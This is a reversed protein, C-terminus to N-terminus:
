RKGLVQKIEAAAAIAADMDIRLASAQQTASTLDGLVQQVGASRLRLLDFRVNQIAIVCSEFQSEVKGRRKVLEGLAVRQRKLLDLRRETDSSPAAGELEEIRQDLQALSADDVDRDMAALTRALEAARETLANVTPVVEPLMARETEPLREVLRVIATHDRRMQEIQAALKGYEGTTPEAAIAAPLAAVPQAKGPVPLADPAPPRNLVDRM